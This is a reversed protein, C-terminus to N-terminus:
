QNFGSHWAIMDEHIILERGGPVDPDIWGVKVRQFSNNPFTVINMIDVGGGMEREANFSFTEGASNNFAIYELFHHLQWPQLDQLQKGNTRQKSRSLNMDHLAHAVAYVGNYMRYSHGTMLLEFNPAPLNELKEVGTCTEGVVTPVSSNAFICDFAQEWFDKLFGDKQTGYPKITQLFEKFGAIEKSHITFSIAGQFVSIDWNGQLGTLIVDVQTTLIWVKRLSVNNKNGTVVIMILWAAILSDGYVIFTTIKNDTYFIHFNTAINSIKEEDDLHFVQQVRQIFASCIGYKYFLPELTQLFFEGNNNDVPLLGIWTWGFYQLLWIIGMYQQSENPVLRYFSPIQTTHIKQKSFSGYAL